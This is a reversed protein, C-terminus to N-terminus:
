RLAGGKAALKMPLLMWRYLYKRATRREIMGIIKEAAREPDIVMCPPIRRERRFDAIFATDMAGPLFLGVRVGSGKLEL